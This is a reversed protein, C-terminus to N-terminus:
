VISMRKEKGKPMTKKAETNVGLPSLQGGVREQSGSAGVWCLGLLNVGTCHSSAM